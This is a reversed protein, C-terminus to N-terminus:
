DWRLWSKRLRALLRRTEEGRLTSLVMGGLILLGSLSLLWFGIRHDRLGINLLNALVDLALFLTGMVLYARIQLAMGLLVGVLCIAGFLVAYSGSDAAGLRQSLEIATPLYVFLGGVVQLFHRSGSALTGRFLQALMLILLGISGLYVESGRLGASLAGILLALNAAVAGLAGFLRSREVAALAV